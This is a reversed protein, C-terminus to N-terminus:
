FRYHVLMDTLATPTIGLDELTLADSAVINDTAMLIVQDATLPPRRCSRQSRRRPEGFRSRSPCCSGADTSGRRCWNVSSGTASSKPGALSMPRRGARRRRLPRQLRRRWTAAFSPQLKTDGRGFLPLVPSRRRWIPWSISSGTPRDFLVSPRLFTAAAFTDAVLADGNARARVYASPSSKDTGIGSIHVLRSIGTEACQRAVNQAGVEHVATFTAAGREVYLGVANVAARCGDLALGVSTADRVDAYVPEIAPPRHSVRRPPARGCPSDSGPRLAPERIEGGLFGSGGFVAVPGDAPNPAM